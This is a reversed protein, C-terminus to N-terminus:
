IHSTVVMICADAIVYKFRTRAYAVLEPDASGPQFWVVEVDDSSLGELVKRGVAPPVVMNVIAVRGPIEGVTRYAALGEIRREGPNVPVVAYGKSLLNVLIANGYKGPNSSAGVLAIQDGPDVSRLIALVDDPVASKSETM